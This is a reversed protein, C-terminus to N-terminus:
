LAPNRQTNSMALGGTELRYTRGSYARHRTEREEDSALTRIMSMPLERAEGRLYIKM